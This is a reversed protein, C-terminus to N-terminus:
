RNITTLKQSVLIQRHHRVAVIYYSNSDILGMVDIANKGCDLQPLHQEFAVRGDVTYIIVDVDTMMGNSSIVLNTGDWQCSIGQDEGISKLGAAGTNIVVPVPDADADSLSAVVVSAPHSTTTAIATVGPPIVAGDLSYVVSHTGQEVSSSSSIMGIDEVLWQINDVRNVIDIAAVPVNSKLYLVGDIWDLAAESSTEEFAPTRLPMNTSMGPMQALLLGVEGM